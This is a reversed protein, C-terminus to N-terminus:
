MLIMCKGLEQEGWMLSLQDKDKLAGVGAPTGTYIIDSKKLGLNQGIFHILTPLDFIMQKINGEQVVKENIMLAFHHAGCGQIGPFKIFESIIAANPFGKSLLWPYQKDKLQQQVERLTLDLGIAMEDILQDINKNPDYDQALKVVLEVEHHVEGKNSPLKISNGDAKVLAHTPKNFIVPESPQQNQLEKVHEVYNRGVCFINKITEM